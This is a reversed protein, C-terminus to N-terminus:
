FQITHILNRDFVRHEQEAQKVENVIADIVCDQFQFNNKFGLFMILEVQHELTDVSVGRNQLLALLYTM